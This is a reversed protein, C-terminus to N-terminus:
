RRRTVAPASPHFLALTPQHSATTQHIAAVAVTSPDNVARVGGTQVAAYVYRLRIEFIFDRFVRKRGERRPQQHATPSTTTTPPGRSIRRCTELDSNLLAGYHFPQPSPDREFIEIM